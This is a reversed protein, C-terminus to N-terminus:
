NLDFEGLGVRFVDSLYNCHRTQDKGTTRVQIIRSALGGLAQVRLAIKFYSIEYAELPM